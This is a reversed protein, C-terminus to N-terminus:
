QQEIEQRTTLRIRCQETTEGDRRFDDLDDSHAQIWLPKFGGRETAQPREDLSYVRGTQGLWGVQQWTQVDDSTTTVFQQHSRSPNLFTM